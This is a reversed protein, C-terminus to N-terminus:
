STTGFVTGRKIYTINSENTIAVGPSYPGAVDGATGASGISGGNGYNSFNFGSAASRIYDDIQSKTTSSVKDSNFPDSFVPNEPSGGYFISFQGPMYGAGPPAGIVTFTNRTGASTTLFYQYRGPGGAGGGGGIIGDNRVTIPYDANIAPGGNGLPNDAAVGDGGKGLVHAGSEIELSVPIGEFDGISLAFQTNFRSGVTTGSRVIARISSVGALTARNLNFIDRLVANEIEDEELSLVYETGGGTGIYDTFVFQKAKVRRMMGEGNVNIAYCSTPEVEGFANEMCRHAISIAQGPSPAKRYPISFDYDVPPNKYIDIIRRNLDLANPQGGLPIWRSYVKRILESPYLNEIVPSVLRSYYNTRDDLKKFPNKQNYYTWIQSVRDRQNDTQTMGSIVDTTISSTQTKPRLVKLQIKRLSVDAWFILGAQQILENILKSVPTPEVIKASYRAPQFEDIEARWESLSMTNSPIPSYEDILKHIIDCSREATFEGVLQATDGAKHESVEGLSQNSDRQITFVDGARTFPMAENGVAILGSTPYEQNGIGPPEVTFQTDTASIDAVLQGSNPAPYNATEGNTLKLFDVCKFSMGDTNGPGSFNDITYHKVSFTGSEDAQYSRVEAGFIYPFRAKFKGLFTGKEYDGQDRAIINKDIGPLLSKCNELSFSLKARVGMSEAPDIVAGTNKMSEAKLLRFTPVDDSPWYRGLGNNTVFRITQTTASYNPIDQCDYSNNRTNFCPTGTATCTGFENTQGFRKACMPLDIEVYEARIM